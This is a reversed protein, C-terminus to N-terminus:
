KHISYAARLTKVNLFARCNLPQTSNNWGIWWLLVHRNTPSQIPADWLQQSLRTGASFRTVAPLLIANSLGHPLHFVAGVPRSMGHVLCVSSNSFAIGGLTAALMMGERAQRNEPDNWATHLHTACLEICQLALPDTLANAKGSVYAEIGHTLTDVGVAATLSKPMSMTLEYDVVAARPLLPVSLMMMKVDHTTDSIVAVKTVESGTGATTPVAIVPLGAHEIQHLGIYESLPQPNTTRVGIVKAADIPSGGGVAVICDAQHAILAAVGAVVNQDTPDPQVDSFTAVDIGSDRLLTAIENAIGLQIVGPDTVLMVRRCSAERVLQVIKTRCGAGHIVTAPVDFRRQVSAEKMEGGRRVFM